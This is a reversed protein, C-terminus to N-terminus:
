KIWDGKHTGSLMIISELSLAIGLVGLVISYTHFNFTAFYPFSPLSPIAFIIMAFLIQGCVGIIVQAKLQSIRHIAAIGIMALGLVILPAGLSIYPYINGEVTGISSGALPAGTLILFIGTLVLTLFTLRNKDMSNRGASSFDGILNM